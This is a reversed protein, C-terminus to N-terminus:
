LVVRVERRLLGKVVFLVGFSIVLLLISLTLAVELDLEFGLYIALPMTQTRGPFNGAFIITAGFEGLARAWTMILGGFLGSWALPITVFRLIQWSNAGDLAAAQELEREVGAFGAMAAKVYFPAAVFTQAIIVAAPTFPLEIGVESLYSGVLGRRGFTLLLALGAVAPPLVMPLDILTELLARGRFRRRALLYAVPTGLLLTLGTSLLSTLLSLRIASQVTTTALSALIAWPMLRLLLTLLPLFLLLVLPLAALLLCHGGRKATWPRKGVTSQSLPRQNHQEKTQKSHREAFLDM